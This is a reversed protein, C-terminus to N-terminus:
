SGPGPKGRKKLQPSLPRKHQAGHYGPTSVPKWGLSLLAWTSERSVCTVKEPPVVRVRNNEDGERISGARVPFLAVLECVETDSVLTLIGAKGIVRLTM